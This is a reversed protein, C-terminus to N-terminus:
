ACALSHTPLCSYQTRSPAPPSLAISAFQRAPVPQVCPERPQAAPLPQMTRTAARELQQLLPMLRYQMGAPSHTITRRRRHQHRQILCCSNSSSSSREALTVYHRYSTVPVQVSIYFSKDDGTRWKRSCPYDAILLMISAQWRNFRITLVLM